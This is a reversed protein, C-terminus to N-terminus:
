RVSTRRVRPAGSCRDAATEPDRGERCRRPDANQSFYNFQVPIQPNRFQSTFFPQQGPLLLCNINNNRRFNPILDPSSLSRSTARIIVSSILCSSFRLGYEGTAPKLPGIEYGFPNQFPGAALGHGESPKGPAISSPNNQTSPFSTMRRSILPTEALCFDDGAESRFLGRRDHQLPSSSHPVAIKVSAKHVWPGVVSRRLGKHQDAM